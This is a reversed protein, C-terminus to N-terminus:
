CGADQAARLPQQILCIMLNMAIRHYFTQTHNALDAHPLGISHRCCEITVPVM